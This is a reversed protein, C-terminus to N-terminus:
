PDKNDYTKNYTCQLTGWFKITIILAEVNPVDIVRPTDTRRAMLLVSEKLKLGPLNSIM